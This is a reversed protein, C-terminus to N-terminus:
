QFICVKQKCLTDFMTYENNWIVWSLYFILVALYSKLIISNKMNPAFCAFTELLWSYWHYALEYFSYKWITQHSALLGNLEVRKNYITAESSDNLLKAMIPIYSPAEGIKESCGPDLFNLKSFDKFCKLWIPLSCNGFNYKWFGTVKNTYDTYRLYGQVVLVIDQLNSGFQNFVVALVPNKGIETFFRIRSGFTKWGLVYGLLLSGRFFWSLWNLRKPAFLNWVFLCVYMCVFQLHNFNFIIKTFIKM